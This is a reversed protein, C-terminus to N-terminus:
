PMKVVVLNHAQDVQAQVVKRHGHGDDVTIEYAGKFVRDSETNGDGATSLKEPATWWEKRLLNQLATYAFKADMKSDVVGGTCHKWANKDTFDWLSIGEVHPNSMLARYMAELQQAQREQNQRNNDRTPDSDPVTIESVYDPVGFKGRQNAEQWVRLIPWDQNFQHMQIGLGDPLAHENMLLKDQALTKQDLVYENELIKATGQDQRLDERAWGEVTKIVQSPGNVGGDAIWRTLGNVLQKQGAGETLQEASNIENMEISDVKGGYRAIIEDVHKHIVKEAEAPTDGAWKPYCDAWVLPHLKIEMNHAKAWEITKDLESYDPKGQEKEIQNWYIPITVANIGMDAIKQLYQERETDTLPKEGAPVNKDGFQNLDTGFLMASRKEVLEVSAGSIPKGNRDVVSVQLDGTRLAKIRADEADRDLDVPDADKAARVPTLSLNKIEINGAEQERGFGFKFRLEGPKTTNPLVCDFDFKQWHTNLDVRENMSQPYPDDKGMITAVIKNGRLSDTKAWFAVHVPNGLEPANAAAASKSKDSGFVLNIAQSLAIPEGQQVPKLLSVHLDSSNNKSVAFSVRSADKAENEPLFKDILLLNSLGGDKVPVSDKAASNKATAADAPNKAAPADASNKAAAADALSKGSAADALSHIELQPLLSASGTQCAADKIPRQESSTASNVTRSIEAWTSHNVCGGRNQELPEAAQKNGSQADGEKGM